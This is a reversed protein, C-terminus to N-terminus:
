GGHGGNVGTHSAAAIATAAALWMAMQRCWACPVLGALIVCVLCLPGFVTHPENRAFGV